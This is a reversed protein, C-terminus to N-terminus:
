ETLYPELNKLRQSFNDIRRDGTSNVREVKKTCDQMFDAITRIGTSTTAFNIDADLGVYPSYTREYPTVFPTLAIMDEELKASLARVKHQRELLSLTKQLHERLWVIQDCLQVSLQLQGMANKGMTEAATVDLTKGPKYGDVLLPELKTLRESLNRIHSEALVGINYNKNTFHDMKRVMSLVGEDTKLYAVYDDCQPTFGGGVFNQYDYPAVFPALKSYDVTGPIPQDSQVNYKKELLGVVKELHQRLWIAQQTNEDLVHNQNSVAVALSGAAMESIPKTAVAVPVKKAPPTLRPAPQLKEPITVTKTAATAQATMPRCVVKVLVLTQVAVIIALVTTITIKKM